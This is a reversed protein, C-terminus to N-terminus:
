TQLPRMEEARLRSIGGRNFDLTIQVRGTFCNAELSALWAAIEAASPKPKDIPDSM